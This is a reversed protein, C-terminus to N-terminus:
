IRRARPGKTSRTTQKMLPDKHARASGCSLSGRKLSRGTLTAAASLAEHGASKMLRLCGLLM